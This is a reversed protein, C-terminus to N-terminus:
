PCANIVIRLTANDLGIVALDNTGDGNFDGTTLAYSSNPPGVPAFFPSDFVGRGANLLAGTQGGSYDAAALDPSGDGNLDAIAVSYIPAGLAYAVQPAFTGGPRSLLVGVTGDLANAVVLDLQGDSDLDAAALAAPHSGVPYHQAPGFITSGLNLFVDVNNDNGEAVALDALQDGNLDAAVIARPFSGVSLTTAAGFGGDGANILLAVTAQDLNTVALDPRHDGDLDAIAVASPFGLTPYATQAQFGGDGANLLVSVTQDDANGVVLDPLQDGNVDGAAIAVPGSGVPLVVPGTFTGNGVGFFVDVTGDARNVTALDPKGDGNLDAQVIGIPGRGTAYAAQAVFAASWSTTESQPACCLAGNTAEHSGPVAFSGAILCGAKCTGLDCVEAAPCGGGQPIGTLPSFATASAGPRCIECVNAPNLQGPQYFAGSVLCGQQCHGGYCLASGCSQGDPSSSWGATDRSPNCAQCTAGPNASGPDFVSGEILCGPHCAGQLCIQGGDCGAGVAGSLPSWDSISSSPQCSKCPSQGDVADPSYFVGNIYCGALCAGAVCVATGAGCSAGSPISSWASTTVRPQCSQCSNAPNPAESAVTVGFITCQTPILPTSKSCAAALILIGTWSHSWRSLRWSPM